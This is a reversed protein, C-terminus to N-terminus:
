RALRMEEGRKKVVIPDLEKGLCNIRAVLTDPKRPVIALNGDFVDADENTAGRRVIAVAADFTRALAHLRGYHARRAFRSGPHKVEDIVILAPPTEEYRACTRMVLEIMEDCSRHISGLVLVRERVCRLVEDNGRALGELEATVEDPTRGTTVYLVRGARCERNLWRGGAAVAAALAVALEHRLEPYGGSIDMSRGYKLVGDVWDATKFGIAKAFSETVSDAWANLADDFLQEPTKPKSKM